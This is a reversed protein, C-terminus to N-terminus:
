TPWQGGNVSLHQATMASALESCLFLVPGASQDPTPMARLPLTSARQELWQEPTIGQMASQSEAALLINDGMIGGLFVGNVRIGWQGVEAALTRTVSALAAKSASYAGLNAVHQLVAGSNVLVISGRGAERMVPVAAKVLHLSAFLNVDFVAHWSEVDAEAVPTWDGEHHANQVLHDIRGFHEVTAGILEQCSTEDTIDTPIVLPERGLARIEDAVSELREPRRAAIVVDVGERAFGLAISRGMGPGIGTIVAVDGHNFV